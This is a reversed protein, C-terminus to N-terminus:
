YGEDPHFEDKSDYIKKFIRDSDNYMFFLGRTVSLGKCLDRVSLEILEDLTKITSAKRIYRYTLDDIDFINRRYTREIRPQLIFSFIMFVAVTSIVKIESPINLSGFRLDFIYLLVLVPTFFVATLLLYVAAKLLATRIDMLNYALVSYLLTATAAISTLTPALVYFTYNNYLMPMFISGIYTFTIFISTAFVVYRIQLRFTENKVKIYKYFFIGMCILFYLFSVAAYVPYLFGTTREPRM